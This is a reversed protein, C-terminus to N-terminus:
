FPKAIGAWAAVGGGSRLRDLRDARGAGWEQRLVIFGGFFLWIVVKLIIWGATYSFAAGTMKKLIALMGYGGLLLLFLGIGHFILAQKRLPGDKGSDRGRRRGDFLAMLAPWTSFKTLILRQADDMSPPRLQAAGQNCATDEPCCALVRMAPEAFTKVGAEPASAPGFPKESALERMLAGGFSKELATGAVLGTGFQKESASERTLPAGSVFKGCRDM